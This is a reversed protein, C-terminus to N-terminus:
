GAQQALGQLAPIAKRLAMGRHSIRNKIELSLEAMTKGYEPV